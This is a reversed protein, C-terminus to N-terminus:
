LLAKCHREDTSYSLKLFNDYQFVSACGVSVVVKRRKKKREKSGVSDMFRDLEGGPSRAGGERKVDAM